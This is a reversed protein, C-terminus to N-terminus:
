WDKLHITRSTSQISYFKIRCIVFEYFMHPCYSNCGSRSVTFLSLLDMIDEPAGLLEIISYYSADHVMTGRDFKSAGDRDLVSKDKLKCCFIKRKLHTFGYNKHVSPLAYGYMDLMKMRKAHWVHTELSKSQRDKLSSLPNDSMGVVQLYKRRRVRRSLPNKPKKNPNSVKLTERQSQRLHHFRQYSSTRRQHFSVLKDSCNM